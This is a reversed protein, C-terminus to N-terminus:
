RRVVTEIKRGDDSFPERLVKEALKLLGFDARMCNKLNRDTAMSNSATNAEGDDGFTLLRSMSIILSSMERCVLGRVVMRESRVAEREPM